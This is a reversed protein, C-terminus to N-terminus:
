TVGSSVSGTWKDPKAFSLIRRALLLFAALRDTHTTDSGHVLLRDMLSLMM